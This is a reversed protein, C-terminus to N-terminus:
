PRAARMAQTRAEAAVRVPHIQWRQIERRVYANVIPRLLVAVAALWGAARVTADVTWCTGGLAADFRNVFEADFRRKTERLVIESPSVLELENVVPGEDHDIDLVLTSGAARHLRVAHVKAFLEPWHEYDAYVEAVTSPRAGVAVSTTVHLTAIRTDDM